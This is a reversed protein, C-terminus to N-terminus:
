GEKADLELEKVAKRTALRDLPNMKDIILVGNLHDLEHQWVRTIFEDSSRSFPRSQEDLATITVASPRRLDGRIEPLSLCGEEHSVLDSSDVQIEPNIYILGAGPTSESRDPEPVVTVFMRWSLGVQPAALGIGEAEHMLEIMRRAVGRVNEDIETIPEAKRRLVPDPYVVISLNTPDVAMFQYAVRRIPSWGTPM